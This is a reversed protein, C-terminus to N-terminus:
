HNEIIEIFHTSPLHEIKIMIKRELIVILYYMPLTDREAIHM